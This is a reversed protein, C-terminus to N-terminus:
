NTSNMERRAEKEPSLSGIYCDEWLQGKHDRFFVAYEGRGYYEFFASRVTSGRIDDLSAIDFQMIPHNDVCCMKRYLDKGAWAADGIHAHGCFHARVNRPLPFLQGLLDSPRNGGPFAYHSFIFVPKGASAMLERVHQFDEQTYPYAEPGTKQPQVGGHSTYWSGDLSAHEPFFFMMFDGVDAQFYFDTQNKQTKWQHLDQVKDYLFVHPPKGEALATRYTDLEHNGPVYYVPAPITMFHKLQMATMQELAQPNVGEVADGLYCIGNVELGLSHFDEMATDMCRKAIVPDKQQLDSILWYRQLVKPRNREMIQDIMSM